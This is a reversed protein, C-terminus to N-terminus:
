YYSNEMYKNVDEDFIFANPKPLTKVVYVADATCDVIDDNEYDKPNDSFAECEALFTEIFDKAFGGGQIQVSPSPLFINGQEIFGQADLFRSFKDKTRPITDQILAKGYKAQLEDILRENRIKELYIGRLGSSGNRFGDKWKMYMQYFYKDFTGSRGKFRWMDLLYLHRSENVGWVCFVSYDSQKTDTFAVDVTAFISIWPQDLDGQYYTSFMDRSMVNGGIDQFEGYYLSQLTKSGQEQLDEYLNTTSYPNQSPNIIGIYFNKNDQMFNGTVPHIQKIFYKYTWHAKTPPNFDYYYQKKLEYYLSKVGNVNGYCYSGEQMTNAEEQTIVVKGQTLRGMIGESGFLHSVQLKSCENLYITSYRAGQVKRFHHTQDSGVCQITSGNKFSITYDTHNIKWPNAEYLNYIELRQFDKIITEKFSNSHGRVVLHRSKPYLGCKIILLSLFMITKGSGTGGYCCIHRHMPKINKIFDQQAKTFKFSNMKQHKLQLREM